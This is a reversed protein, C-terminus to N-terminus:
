EAAPVEGGIEGGESVEGTEDDESEIRDLGVLRDGDVPRMIRVGQTNRGAVRVESARTRILNGSESILMIDHSDDVVLAGILRGTKDNLQQGIVGQGGRGKRPFQDVPTRKGFGCESVTLIDGKSPIILAIVRAGEGAADAADDTDDVAEVVEEGEEESAAFTKILRMGRVGTAGRGMSRVASEH